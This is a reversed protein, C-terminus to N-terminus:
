YYTRRRYPIMRAQAKIANDRNRRIRKKEWEAKWTIYKKCISHCGACRDPCDRTCPADATGTFYVNHEKGTREM